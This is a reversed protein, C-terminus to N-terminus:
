PVLSYYLNQYNRVVSKIEYKRAIETRLKKSKILAQDYNNLVHLMTKKFEDLSSIYSNENNLFSTVSGVPTSIIPVHSAAAELLVLPFAEWLSPLLLCDSKQLIVSIDNQIGLFNIKNELNNEKVLKKLYSELRGSGVINLEINEDKLEKFIEIVKIHNKMIELRGIM